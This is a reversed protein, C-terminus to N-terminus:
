LTLKWGPQADEASGADALWEYSIDAEVAYVNEPSYDFITGSDDYFNISTGGNPSYWMNAGNKFTIKAGVEGVLPQTGDSAVKPLFWTSGDVVLESGAKLTFVQNAADILWAKAAGLSDVQSGAIGNLQAGGELTYSTNNFSFKANDALQFNAAADAPDDSGIILVNHIYAQGGAEVVVKGTGGLANDDTGYTKGDPKITITGTNTGTAGTAMTYTGTVEIDGEITIGGAIEVDGGITLTKSTPVSFTKGTPVILTVDAPIELNESLTVDNKLSVKAGDLLEADNGLAAAVEDAAEEAENPEAKWGATGSGNANTNWKYTRDSEVSAMLTGEAHTYFNGATVTAGTEIEVTADAAAGVLSGVVFTLTAGDEVTLIKDAPVTLTKGTAVTLTVGSVIEINDTLTVDDNLTVATGSV